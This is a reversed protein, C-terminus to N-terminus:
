KLSKLYLELATWRADGLPLSKKTKLRLEQMQVMKEQLTILKGAARDWRPFKGHIGKLSLEPKQPNQHCKACTKDNTGLAADNFVKQGLRLAEEEAAKAAKLDEPSMAGDGGDQALVAAGAALAAAAVLSAALRPVRM